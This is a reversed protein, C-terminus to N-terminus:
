LLARAREIEASRRRWMDIDLWSRIDADIAQEMVDAPLVDAEWCRRGYEEIYSKSRSDTVKVEIALRDLDHAAVQEPTLGIRVFNCLM